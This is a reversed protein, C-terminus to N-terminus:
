FPQVIIVLLIYGIRDLFEILIGSLMYESNDALLTGSLYDCIQTIGM